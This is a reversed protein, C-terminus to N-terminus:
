VSLSRARERALLWVIWVSLGALLVGIWTQTVINLGIQDTLRAVANYLVHLGIMTALLKRPLKDALSLAPEASGAAAAAAQREGDARVLIVLALSLGVHLILTGPSAAYLWHDHAPLDLDLRELRSMRMGCEAAWFGIAPAAAMLPSTLKFRFAAWARALEELAPGLALWFLGGIVIGALPIAFVTLTLFAGSIGIAGAALFGGVGLLAFRTATNPM